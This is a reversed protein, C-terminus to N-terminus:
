PTDVLATVSCSRFKRFYDPPCVCHFSSHAAKDFFRGSGSLENIARIQRDRLNSIVLDQDFNVARGDAARVEVDHVPVFPRLRPDMRRHDGAMFGGAVNYLHAFVNMVALYAVPDGALSVNGAAGAPEALVAQRVDAPVDLEEADRFVTGECLIGLDTRVAGEQQVIVDGIFSGAQKLGHTCADM